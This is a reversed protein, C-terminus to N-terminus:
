SVVGVVVLSVNERNLTCAEKLQYYESPRLDLFYEPKRKRQTKSSESDRIVTTVVKTSRIANHGILLNVTVLAGVSSKGYVLQRATCGESKGFSSSCTSM